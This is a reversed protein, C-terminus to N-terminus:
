VLNPYCFRLPPSITRVNMSREMRAEIIMPQRKTAAQAFLGTAVTLGAGAGAGRGAAGLSYMGFSASLGIWKANSLDSMRGASAFIRSALALHSVAFGFWSRSM